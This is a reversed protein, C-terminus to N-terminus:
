VAAVVVLSSMAAMVAVVLAAILVARAIFNANELVEGVVDKVMKVGEELAGPINDGYCKDLYTKKSVSDYIYLCHKGGQEYVAVHLNLVEDWGRAAPVRQKDVHINIHWVGATKFKGFAHNNHPKVVYVRLNGIPVPGWALGASERPYLASKEPLSFTDPFPICIDPLVEVCPPSPLDTPSSDTPHVTSNRPNISSDESLSSPLSAAYTTHLFPALLLLSLSLISPTKM